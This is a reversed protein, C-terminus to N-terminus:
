SCIGEIFDMYDGAIDIDHAKSIERICTPCTV